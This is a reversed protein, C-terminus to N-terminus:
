DFAKAAWEAFQQRTTPKGTKAVEGADKVTPYDSPRAFKLIEEAQKKAEEETEATILYAPVGTEAAVSERIQRVADARKMTDLETQLAAARETAKQLESKAAEEIADLRGAKEKLEEYDAYKARDRKLRDGVIADVEAQTFTKEATETAENVQNVTENM